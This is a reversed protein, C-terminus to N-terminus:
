GGLQRYLLYNAYYIPLQISRNKLNKDKLHNFISRGPKSNAELLWVKALSDVGLDIGLESLRGFHTELVAPLQEVIKHISNMIQVTKTEGFENILFPRVERVFGGGHLNSTLSGPQGCRVAMGTFQWHGSGNKQVLARIDFSTDSKTKLQLYQQIVYKRKQIFQQISNALSTYKEYTVDLPVNNKDRGRIVYDNHNNKKIHLIAKGHSGNIPKLIFENQSDLWQKITGTNKYLETKPLVNKIYPKSKLVDYVSWKDMLRNGLFQVKKNNKIMLLQKRYLLFQEQSDIFCRDYILTPIPFTKTIWKKNKYVVGTLQNKEWQIQHLAFILVTIKLKLGFVCLRKYFNQSGDSLATNLDSVMIGLSNFNM